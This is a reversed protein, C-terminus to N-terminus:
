AARLEPSVQTIRPSPALSRVESEPPAASLMSFTIAPARASGGATRPAWLELRLAKWSGTVTPILQAGQRLRAPLSCEVAPSNDEGSCCRAGLHHEFYIPHSAPAKLGSDSVCGAKLWHPSPHM